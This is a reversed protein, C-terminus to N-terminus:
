LTGLLGVTLFQVIAYSVIVLLIGAVSYMLIKKAKTVQEDGGYATVFLFGAYVLGIFAALTLYPLVFNIYKIILDVMNDTHTIGSAELSTRSQGVGYQADTLCRIDKEYLKMKCMSSTCIRDFEKPNKERKTPDACYSPEYYTTAKEVCSIHEPFHVCFSLCDEHGELDTWPEADECFNTCDGGADIDEKIDEWCHHTQNEEFGSFITAYTPVAFVTFLLLIPIVLLSKSKLTM